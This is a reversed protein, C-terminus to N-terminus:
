RHVIFQLIVVAVVFLMIYKLYNKLKETNNPQPNIVAIVYITLSSLNLVCIMIPVIYLSDDIFYKILPISVLISVLFILLSLISAMKPGWTNAITKIGNRRDGEIDHIGKLIERALNYFLAYWGIMSVSGTISHNVLIDAYFFIASVSYSIFFSGILGYKKLYINYIDILLINITMWFSTFSLHNVFIHDIIISFIVANAILFLVLLKVEKITLRESPLMRYPANIKDIEIDNLDNHTNGQASVCFVIYGIIIYNSLNFDNSVLLLAVWTTIMALFANVPRIIKFIPVIKTQM